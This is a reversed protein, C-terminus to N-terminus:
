VHGDLTCGPDRYSLVQSCLLKASCLWSASLLLCIHIYMLSIPFKIVYNANGGVVGVGGINTMYQKPWKVCGKGYSTYKM